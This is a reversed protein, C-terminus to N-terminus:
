CSNSNRQRMANMLALIRSQLVSAISPVLPEQDVKPTDQLGEREVDEGLCTLITRVSEKLAAIKQEPYNTPMAASTTAHKRQQSSCFSLDIM